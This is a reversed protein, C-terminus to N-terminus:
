RLGAASHELAGTRAAQQEMMEVYIAELKRTRVAFDFQNEVTQRGCRAWQRWTAPHELFDLIAAALAESSHPPVLRGTVGDELVEPTGGVNTALVPVEMALAELAANPLGETHSPLVMLDADQLVRAPQKVYGPLHVWEELGAARIRAVLDARSPGDGAMVTTVHRGAAAVRALADVFDAHGKEPSLRGISVLIPRPLPRGVLAELAGTENTRRYKELVIANHLLTIKGAPVHAALLDRQMKASVAIVRDFRRLVRKDLDIMLRQKPSNGIWGHATSVIPVRHLLSMAYTLVDSSAEHPHVIDFRQRRVLAALRWIQGLDYPGGARIEHIPLGFARAAELFPTDERDGARRFVGLHLNFRSHDIARYSELITKGPGGIEHTDRLDLVNIPRVTSV